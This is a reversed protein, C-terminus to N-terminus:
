SQKRSPIIIGKQKDEIIRPSFLLYIGLFLAPTILWLLIRDGEGYIIYIITISIIILLGILRKIFGM